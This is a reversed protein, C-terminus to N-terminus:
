TGSKTDHDGPELIEVALLIGILTLILILGVPTKLFESVYGVYPIKGTVVGIVYSGSGDFSSGCIGPENVGQQNNIGHTTFEVDGQCASAQPTIGVVEHVIPDSLSYAPYWFIIDDGLKITSANIGQIPVNFILVPVIQPGVGKVVVVDWVNYKPVMSQSIVVRLPANTSYALEIGLFVGYAVGLGIVLLLVNVALTRSTSEREEKGLNVAEVTPPLVHLRRPKKLGEGNKGKGSVIVSLIYM